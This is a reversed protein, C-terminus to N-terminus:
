KEADRDPHLPSLFYYKNFLERTGSEFISLLCRRIIGIGIKPKALYNSYLEILTPILSNDKIIPNFITFTSLLNTPINSIYNSLDFLKLDNEIINKIDYDYNYDLKSTLIFFNNNTEMVFKCITKGISVELQHERKSLTEYNQEIITMIKDLINKKNKEDCQFVQIKIIRLPPSRNSM